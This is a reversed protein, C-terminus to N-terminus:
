LVPGSDCVANVVRSVTSDRLVPTTRAIHDAFVKAGQSCNCQLFIGLDEQRDPLRGDLTQVTIDTVRGDRRLGREQRGRPM